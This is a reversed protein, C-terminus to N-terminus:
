KLLQQISSWFEGAANDGVLDKIMDRCASANVMFEEVSTSDEIKHSFLEADPGLANHLSDIAILKLAPLTKQPQRSTHATPQAPEDGTTQLSAAGDLSGVFGQAELQRLMSEVDGLHAAKAIIDAATTAGDVMILLARQKFALKYARTAVEEKGKATKAYVSHSDM